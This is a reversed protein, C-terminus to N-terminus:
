GDSRPDGSKALRTRAAATGSQSRKAADGAANKAKVLRVAEEAQERTFRGTHSSMIVTRWPKQTSTM